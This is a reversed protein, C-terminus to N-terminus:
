TLWEQFGEAYHLAMQWPQIEAMIRDARCEMPPEKDPLGSLIEALSSPAERQIRSQRAEFARVQTRVDAHTESEEKALTQSLHAQVGALKQSIRSETIGFLDGIEQETFGWEYTLRTIIREGAPLMGTLREFDHRHKQEVGIGRAAEMGAMQHEATFRREYGPLGPRGFKSRVADIVAQDITQHQGRGECFKLLVTQAIDDATEAFGYRRASAVARERFKKAQENTM